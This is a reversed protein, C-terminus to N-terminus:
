EKAGQDEKVMLYVYPNGFDSKLDTRGCIRFGLSTYIKVQSLSETGWAKGADDRLFPTWLISVNVETTTEVVM